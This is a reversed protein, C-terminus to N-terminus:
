DVGDFSITSPLIGVKKMEDIIDPMAYLKYKKMENAKFSKSNYM